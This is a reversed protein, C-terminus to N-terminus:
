FPTQLDLRGRRSGQNGSKSTQKTSERLQAVRTRTKNQFQIFRFMCKIVEFNTPALGLTMTLPASLRGSCRFNPKNM